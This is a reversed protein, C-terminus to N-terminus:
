YFLFNNYLRLLTFSFLILVFMADIALAFRIRMTLPSPSIEIFNCILLTPFFLMDLSISLVFLVVLSQFNIIYICYNMLM